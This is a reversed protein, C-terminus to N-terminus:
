RLNDFNSITLHQLDVIIKSDEDGRNPEWDYVQINIRLKNKYYTVDWSHFNEHTSAVWGKEELVKKMRDIENKQDEKSHFRKESLCSLSPNKVFIFITPKQYKCTLDFASLASDNFLIYKSYASRLPSVPHALLLIFIAVFVLLLIKLIKKM